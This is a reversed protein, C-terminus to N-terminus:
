SGRRGYMFSAIAIVSGATLYIVGLIDYANSSEESDEGETYYKTLWFECSNVYIVLAFSELTMNLFTSLLNTSVKNNFIKTLVIYPLFISM